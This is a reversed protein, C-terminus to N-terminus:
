LLSKSIFLGNTLNTITGNTEVQLITMYLNSNKDAAKLARNLANTLSSPDYFLTKLTQSDPFFRNPSSALIYNKSLPVKIAFGPISNNVEFLTAGEASMNFDGALKAATTASLELTQLVRENMADIKTLTANMDNLIKTSTEISNQMVSLTAANLTAAANTDCSTLAPTTETKNSNDCGDVFLTLLIAFASCKFANTM